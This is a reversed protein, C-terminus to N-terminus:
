FTSPPPEIQAAGGHPALRLLTVTDGVLSVLGPLRNNGNDSFEFGFSRQLSLRGDDRRTLRVGNAAVSDDLFQLGEEQCLRRAAAVGLERAKLGSAIYWALAGLLGLLFLPTLIQM